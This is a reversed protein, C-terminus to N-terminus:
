AAKRELTFRQWKLGYWVSIAMFVILGLWTLSYIPHHNFTAIQYFAVSVSYAVLSSWVFSFWMWRYNLERAIVALTSVCPVYLLIFLLYAYAAIPTQFRTVMEGYMSHNVDQMKVNSWLPSMLADPIQLLNHWISLAAEKFCATLYVPEIENVMTTTAALQTYLTNLTGVVVEKALTGSILSVTAPWNDMSIGMPYFLPTLWQGLIALVTNSHGIQYSGDVTLANLVGIVVCAPIILKGARIVFTKLRVWTQQWLILFSPWKYDPLETVLPSSSTPLLTKRFLFGTLLAFVVGILYLSFVVNHGGRPFFASVFVSYVALRASCSMFPSMMITLAREKPYQLTRVAMIGPVNCGFGIVLPLFSRGPLGLTQMIRDMVFAGRAMYGSSELFSLFLFMCGIVPVFCLTTNIGRGIGQAILAVLWDPSHWEHLLYAVGDVFVATTIIDIADQFIKGGNIAFVFMLYMLLFFFPFAVYRNLIVSDLKDRLKSYHSKQYTFHDLWELIARYRADAVVVDSTEGLKKTIKEDLQSKLTHIDPDSITDTSSFYWLAKSSASLVPDDILLTSLSQQAQTIAQPMLISKNTPPNKYLSQVKTLLETTLTSQNSIIPIVPVGIKKSLKEHDIITKSKNAIDMMTLVILFPIRTELLFTTLYLGRELHNADIVQILLDFQGKLVADITQQEDVAYHSTNMTLQYVGPCDVLQIVQDGSKLTAVHHEVTVGPFNGVRQKKGTLKNFLSTKGANPAGIFGVTLETM